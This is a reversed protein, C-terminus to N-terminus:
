RQDSVLGVIGAISRFSDVDLDDIPITVQFERELRDLLEVIGLSDLLGGDILDADLDRIEVSLIEALIEAIQNADRGASMAASM